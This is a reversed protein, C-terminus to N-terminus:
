KETLFVHGSWVATIIMKDIWSAKEGTPKIYLWEAVYYLAGNSFDVCDGNIIDKSYQAMRQYIRAPQKSTLFGIVMDRSPDSFNTWSFQKPQLIVAKFTNPFRPSTMRNKVVNGIALWERIDDSLDGEQMRAEGYMNGIMLELESFSTLSIM